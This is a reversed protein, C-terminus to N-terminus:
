LITLHSFYGDINQKDFVRYIKDCNKDRQRNDAANVLIEDFIKYLGPIYTVNEKKMKKPNVTDIVYLKNTTPQISGIYTDPRTLIHEAQSLRKYTNEISPQAKKFFVPTTSYQRTTKPLCRIQRILRFRAIRLM